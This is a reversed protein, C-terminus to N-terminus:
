RFASAEPFEKILFPGFVKPGKETVDVIKM